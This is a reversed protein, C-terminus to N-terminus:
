RTSRRAHRRLLRWRRLAREAQEEGGHAECRAFRYTGKSTEWDIGAGENECRGHTCTM